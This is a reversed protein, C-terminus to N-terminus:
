ESRESKDKRKPNKKSCFSNAGKENLSSLKKDNEVGTSDAFATVRLDNKDIVQPSKSMLKQSNNQGHPRRALRQQTVQSSNM